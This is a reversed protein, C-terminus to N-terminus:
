AGVGTILAWYYVILGLSGLAAYMVPLVPPPGTMANRLTFGGVQSAIGRLHAATGVLGVVVAIAFVTIFVGATAGNRVLGFAIAALVAVPTFLVPGWMIRNRFAGRLHLLWVQIWMLLYAAALFMCLFRELPWGQWSEM